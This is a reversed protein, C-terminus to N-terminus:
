RMPQKQHSKVGTIPNTWKPQPTKMLKSVDYFPNRLREPIRHYVEGEMESKRSLIRLFKLAIFM